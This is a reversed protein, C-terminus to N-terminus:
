LLACFPVLLELGAYKFLKCQEALIIKKCYTKQNSTMKKDVSGVDKKKLEIKYATM